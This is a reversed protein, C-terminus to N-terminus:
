CNKFIKNGHFEGRLKYYLLWRYIVYISFYLIQKYNIYEKLMAFV